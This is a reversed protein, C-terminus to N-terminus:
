CLSRLVHWVYHSNTYTDITTQVDGNKILWLCQLCILDKLWELIIMNILSYTFEYKITHTVYKNERNIYIISKEKKWFSYRYKVVNARDTFPSVRICLDCYSAFRWWANRYICEFPWWYADIADSLHLFIHLSYYISVSFSQIFNTIPINVYVSFIHSFLGITWLMKPSCSDPKAPWTDESILLVSAECEKQHIYWHYWM